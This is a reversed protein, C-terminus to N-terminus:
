QEAPTTAPILVRLAQTEVRIDIASPVACEGVHEPPWAEDDVHMTHGHWEFQLRKGRYTPLEPALLTGRRWSALHALLSNREREAVLVVDIMGDGPDCGPAVYLNPGVFNINMAEMMLYDGSLDRDDLRLEMRRVPYTRLRDSLLTLASAIKEQPTTLHELRNFADIECMTRTFVGVGVGEIFHHSGWPAEIVGIDLQHTPATQWGAILQELSCDLLGLSRSINNATGTPIFTLPVPCGVLRKAIRGATGDGGSIAILDCAAVAAEIDSMDDSSWTEVAHGSRRILDMLTDADPHEQPGGAKPNHVLIIRM